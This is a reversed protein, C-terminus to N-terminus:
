LKFKLKTATHLFDIFALLTDTVVSVYPMDTTSFIDQPGLLLKKRYVDNIRGHNHIILNRRFSAERVTSWHAFKPLDIGLRNSFYTAVDDIGGHGLADVERAALTSWLANVSTFTALEEYTISRSSKLITRKHLLIQLLYDKIFAEQHAVLYSLTMESLFTQYKLPITLQVLFRGVNPSATLEGVFKSSGEQTVDQKAALAARTILDALEELEAAESLDFPTEPERPHKETISTEAFRAFEAIATLEATASRVVSTLAALLTM